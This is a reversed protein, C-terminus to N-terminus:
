AGFRILALREAALLEEGLAVPIERASSGADVLADRPVLLITKRPEFEAGVPEPRHGAAILRQATEEDIAYAREAFALM